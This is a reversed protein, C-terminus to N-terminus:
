LYALKGELNGDRDRAEETAIVPKGDIIDDVNLDAVTMVTATSVVEKGNKDKVIKTKSVKRVPITQAAATVPNNYEDYESTHQLWTAQQNLYKEFRSSVTDGWM